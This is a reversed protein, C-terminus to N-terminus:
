RSRSRKREEEEQQRDSEATNEGAPVDEVCLLRREHYLVVEDHRGVQGVSDDHEVANGGPVSVGVRLFWLWTKFVCVNILRLTLRQSTVTQRRLGWLRSAPIFRKRDSSSIVNLRSGFLKLGRMLLSLEMLTHVCVDTDRCTYPLGSPCTSFKQKRHDM